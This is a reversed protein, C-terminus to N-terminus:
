PMPRAQFTGSFASRSQQWAIYKENLEPDAALVHAKAGPERGPGAAGAGAHLFPEGKEFRVWECIRTLKWNMTFTVDALRSRRHRRATSATRSTTPPGEGSTSASRRASSTPSRSPSTGVGFHSTIRNDSPGDFRIEVDEKAPGGYWYVRFSAPSRLIWGCQISSSRCAAYPACIAKDM